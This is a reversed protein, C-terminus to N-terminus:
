FIYSSLPYMDANKLDAILTHNNSQSLVSDIVNKYDTLVDSSKNMILRDNKWTTYLLDIFDDSAENIIQVIQPSLEKISSYMRPFRFGNHEFQGSASFKDRLANSYVYHNKILHLTARSYDGKNRGLFDSPFLLFLEARLEDRKEKGLDTFNLPLNPDDPTVYWKTGDTNNRLYEQLFNIKGSDDLSRLRDYDEKNKFVSTQPNNVDIIFRPSHTVKISKTTQWYPAFKVLLRQEGPVKSGFFLYIEEYDDDTISELVSNGNTSWTGNNRSKLEVGYKSGNLILDVDPFHHGLQPDVQLIDNPLLQTAVNNAIIPFLEEFGNDNGRSKLYELPIPNIREIEEQIMTLVNEINM